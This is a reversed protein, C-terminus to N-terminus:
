RRWRASKCEVLPLGRRSSAGRHPDSIVNGHCRRNAHTYKGACECFIAEQKSSMSRRQTLTELVSREFDSFGCRSALMVRSRRQHDAEPSAPRMGFGHGSGTAPKLKPIPPARSRIVDAWTLGHSTVLQHAKRAAAAREGDHDSGFLGALKVLRDCSEPTFPKM